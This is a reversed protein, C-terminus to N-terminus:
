WPLLFHGTKLWKIEFSIRSVQRFLSLLKTFTPQVMNSINLWFGCLPWKPGETLIPNISSDNITVPLLCSSMKLPDSVKELLKESDSVISVFITLIKLKLALYINAKRKSWKLPIEYVVCILPFRM